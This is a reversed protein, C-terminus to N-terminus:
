EGLALRGSKDHTPLDDNQIIQHAPCFWGYPIQISNCVWRKLTQRTLLASQAAKRASTRM